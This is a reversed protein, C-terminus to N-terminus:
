LVALVTSLCRCLRHTRISSPSNLLISSHTVRRKGISGRRVSRSSVARRRTRLARAQRTTEQSVDGHRCCSHESQWDSPSWRRGSGVLDSTVLDRPPTSFDLQQRLLRCRHRRLTLFLAPLSLSALPFSLTCLIHFVWYGTGRGLLDMRLYPIMTCWPWSPVRACSLSSQWVLAAFLFVTTLHVRVQLAAQCQMSLPPHTPSLFYIEANARERGSRHTGSSM